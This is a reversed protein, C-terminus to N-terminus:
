FTKKIICVPPRSPLTCTLKPDQPVPKQAAVHTGPVSGLPHWPSIQTGQFIVSGDRWGAKGEGWEKEKQSQSVTESHVEPVRKTSWAPRFRM